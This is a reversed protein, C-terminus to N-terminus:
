FLQLKEIVLINIELLMGNHEKGTKKVWYENVRM